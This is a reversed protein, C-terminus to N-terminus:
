LLNISRPQLQLVILPWNYCSLPNFQLLTLGVQVTESLLSSFLYSFLYAIPAVIWNYVPTWVMILTPQIFPINRWLDYFGCIMSVVQVVIIVATLLTRMWPRYWVGHVPLNPVFPNTACNVAWGPLGAEYQQLLSAQEARLLLNGVAGPLFPCTFFIAVMQAPLPEPEHSGGGGDEVGEEEDPHPWSPWAICRWGAGDPGARWQKLAEAEQETFHLVQPQQYSESYPSREVGLGCRAACEESPALHYHRAQVWM